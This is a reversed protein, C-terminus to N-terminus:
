HTKAFLIASLNLRMRKPEVISIALKGAVAESLNARAECVPNTPLSLVGIELLHDRSPSTSAHLFPDIVVAPVAVFQLNFFPLVSM